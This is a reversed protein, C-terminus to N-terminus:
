SLPHSRPLGLNWLVIHYAVPVNLFRGQNHSFLLVEVIVAAFYGLNHIILISVLSVKIRLMIPKLIESVSSTLNQGWWNLPFLNPALHKNVRKERSFLILVM